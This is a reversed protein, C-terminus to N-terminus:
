MQPLRHQVRFVIQGHSGHGGGLSIWARRIIWGEGGEARGTRFGQRNPPLRIGTVLDVASEIQGLLEAGGGHDDATAFGPADDVAEFREVHRHDKADVKGVLRLSGLGFNVAFQGDFVAVFWEGDEFVALGTPVFARGARRHECLVANAECERTFPQRAGLCKVGTNARQDGRTQRGIGGDGGQRAVRRREHALGLTEARDLRAFEAM